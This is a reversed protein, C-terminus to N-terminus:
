EPLSFCLSLSGRRWPIWACVRRYVGAWEIGPTLNCDVSAIRLMRAFCPQHPNSKLLGSNNNHAKCM